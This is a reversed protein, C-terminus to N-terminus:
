SISLDKNLLDTILMCGPSHTICLSPKATQIIVQPTVGCAWFMPVHDLSLSDPSEGWDPQYLDKIGIATPDGVHVPGGHVFPFQSTIKVVEDVRNKPFSRMSVVMPGQFRGAPNCTINTIYMPVITGKEIHPLQFGADLLPLEFSLSCGLVFVVLDSRWYSNINTPEDVLEGFRFVKYKPLDTRIDIDGLTYNLCPDGPTGMGIVPCPKPNRHCFAAFEIAYEKPLIILNGQVNQKAAGTTYGCYEGARIIERAEHSNQTNLM